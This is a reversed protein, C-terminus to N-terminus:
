IIPPKFNATTPANIGCFSGFGVFFPNVEGRCGFVCVSGAALM